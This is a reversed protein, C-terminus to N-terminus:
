KTTELRWDYPTDALQARGKKRAEIRRAIHNAAKRVDRTVASGDLRLVDVWQEMAAAETFMERDRRSDRRLGDFTRHIPHGDIEVVLRVDPFWFDARYGAVRTQHRANWRRRIIELAVAIELSSDWKGHDYLHKVVVRIGRRYDSLAYGQGMIMRCARKFARQRKGRDVPTALRDAREILRKDRCPGCLKSNGNRAEFEQGCDRCAKSRSVPQYNVCSSCFRKQANPWLFPKECRECVRELLPREALSSQM